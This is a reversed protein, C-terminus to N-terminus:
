KKGNKMPWASIEDWSHSAEWNAADLRMVAVLGSSIQTRYAKWQAAHDKGRHALRPAVLFSIVRAGGVDLGIGDPVLDVQLGLETRLAEARETAHRSQKAAKFDWTDIWDRDRPSVYGILACAKRLSGFHKVYFSVHNLGLTNIIHSNLKGRRRLTLRLRLLM